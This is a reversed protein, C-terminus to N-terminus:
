SLSDVIKFVGDPGKEKLISIHARRNPKNKAGSLSNDINELKTRTYNPLNGLGYQHLTYPEKEPNSGTALVRLDNSADGVVHADLKQNKLNMAEALKTLVYKIAGDKGAMAPVIHVWGTFNQGKNNDSAESFDIKLGEIRDHIARILKRLNEYDINIMVLRLGEIGPTGDQLRPGEDVLIRSLQGSSAYPHLEPRILEVILKPNFRSRQLEGAERFSITQSILLKAYEEDIALEGNKQRWYIATGTGAMVADPAPLMIEETVRQDELEDWIPRGTNLIFPLEKERIQAKTEENRGTYFRNGKNIYITGDVDSVLLDLPKNESQRKNLKSVVVSNKALEVSSVM